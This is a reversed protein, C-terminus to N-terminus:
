KEYTTALIKWPSHGFLRSDELPSRTYSCKGKRQDKSRPMGPMQHLPFPPTTYIYIYIYLYVCM